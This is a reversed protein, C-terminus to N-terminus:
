DDTGGEGGALASLQEAIQDAARPRALEAAARSMSKLRGPDAMLELVTPILESDLAEDRIMVAAGRSVLYEANTRQYRWAYPYPVLVAPLGFLPYEGLVSAGARSVVLEAASFALGMEEHLYAFPRYRKVLEAPLTEMIREAEPWGREGTLHLVQFNTLLHELGAWLAQNISRAGLSGGMVLLLPKEAVLGLTEQADAQAAERLKPRTPYGSVFLREDHPYFQRSGETSLLVRQSFRAILKAALAPEVDPVFLAKPFSWGALAMPVGVYGGTFFIVQPRFRALVSRSKWVGRALKSINGPLRRLSVGHVGAAPIGEFTIGARRVLSEAMGGEGGVWLVEAQKGLADVVALAPYM